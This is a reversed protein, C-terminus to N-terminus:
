AKLNYYVEDLFDSDYVSNDFFLGYSRSIDEELMRKLDNFARANNSVLEMLEEFSHVGFDIGLGFTDVAKLFTKFDMRYTLVDLLEFVEKRTMELTNDACEMLYDYFNEYAQSDGYEDWLDYGYLMNFMEGEAVDDVVSQTIGYEDLIDAYLKAMRSYYDM